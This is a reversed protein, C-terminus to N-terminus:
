RFSPNQKCFDFIAMEAASLNLRTYPLSPPLQYAHRQAPSTTKLQSKELISDDHVTWTSSRSSCYERGLYLDFDECTTNLLLFKTSDRRALSRTAACEEPQLWRLKLGYVCTRGSDRCRRCQPRQEDCKVKRQRCCLCGSRTRPTKFRGYFPIKGTRQRTRAATSMTGYTQREILLISITTTTSSPSCM